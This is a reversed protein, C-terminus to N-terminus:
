LIRFILRHDKKNVSQLFLPNLIVFFVPPKLFFQFSILNFLQLSPCALNESWWKARLHKGIIELQVVVANFHEHLKIICHRLLKSVVNVNYEFPSENLHAIAAVSLKSNLQKVEEVRDKVLVDLIFQHKSVEFGLYNVGQQTFLSTNVVTDQFLLDFLQESHEIAEIIFLLGIWHKHRM